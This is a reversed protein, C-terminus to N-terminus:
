DCRIDFAYILKLGDFSQEVTGRAFRYAGTGGVVVSTHDDVSRQETDQPPGVTESLSHYYIEGDALSLVQIVYTESSEGPGPPPDLYMTIFRHDGVGNGAQDVLARHGIRTDGPGPGDNGFDLFEVTRQSSTITPPTCGTSTQAHASVTGLGLFVTSLVLARLLRNNTM